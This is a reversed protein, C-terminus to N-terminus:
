GQQLLTLMEQHLQENAAVVMPHRHVVGKALGSAILSFDIPNGDVDSVVGGARRVVEYALAEYSPQGIAHDIFGDIEGLAIRAATIAGDVTTVLGAKQFVSLPLLARRKQKLLSIAIFADEVNRVDSCRTADAIGLKPPYVVRTAGETDTQLIRNIQLDALAGSVFDGQLSYEYAAVACERFGRFTLSTNCYPDCVLMRRDDGLKVLGREESYVIGKYRARDLVEFLIKEACLDIRHATHGDGKDKVVGGLGGVQEPEPLIPRLAESIEYVIDFALNDSMTM